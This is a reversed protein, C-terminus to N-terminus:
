STHRDAGDSLHLVARVRGTPDAPATAFGMHQLVGLAALNSAATEAIVAAAGLDAAEQVVAVLAARGIGHGRASRSLWIGAELADADETRKLRVSGVVHDDAIVAWTAEGAPGGIGTRRDRHFRRLWDVRSLSWTNGPTLPPTVEHASAETTAVSVLRELVDDDVPALDVRGRLSDPM